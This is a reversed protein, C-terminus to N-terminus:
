QQLLHGQVWTPARFTQLPSQHNQVHSPAQCSIAESCPCSNQEPYATKQWLVLEQPLGSSHIKVKELSEIDGVHYPDWVISCYELHPRIFSKYLQLLTATDALKRCHYLLSILERAKICLNAVHPSWSLDSHIQLGLYKVLSNHSSYRWCYHLPSSTQFEKEQLHSYLLM